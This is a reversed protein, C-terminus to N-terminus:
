SAPKPPPNRRALFSIGASGAGAALGLIIGIVVGIAINLPKNPRVPRFGPVARDVIEVLSTKPVALDVKESEIRASLADLHRNAENRERKAAAYAPYNAQLEEDAPEPSPVNLDKRLRSANQRAAEVKQEQESLQEELARARGLALERSRELRYARYAEAVGNAIM